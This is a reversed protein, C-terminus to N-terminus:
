ALMAGLKSVVQKVVITAVGAEFAAATKGTVMEKPIVVGSRVTRSWPKDRGRVGIREIVQGNLKGIAVRNPFRGGMTFAHAFVKAEGLPHAVVGGTTEQPGFYKLRIDGGQSRIRYSLSSPTSPSAKQAKDITKRDLGTQKTEADVTITRLEGAAANLAKSLVVAGQAGMRELRKAYDGLARDQLAAVLRM